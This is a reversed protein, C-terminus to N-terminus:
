IHADVEANSHLMDKVHILDYVIIYCSQLKIKFDPMM